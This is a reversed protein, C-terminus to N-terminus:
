LTVPLHQLYPLLSNNKLSMCLQFFSSKLEVVSPLEMADEAASFHAVGKYEPRVPPPSTSNTYHYM